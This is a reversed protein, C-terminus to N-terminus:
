ETSINKDTKEKRFYALGMGIIVFYAPLFDIESFIISLVNVYTPWPLTWQFLYILCWPIMCVTYSVLLVVFVIFAKFNAKQLGFFRILFWGLCLSCFPIIFPRNMWLLFGIQYTSSLQQLQMYEWIDFLPLALVFVCVLILYLTHHYSKM